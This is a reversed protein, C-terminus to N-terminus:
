IGTLNEMSHASFGTTIAFKILCNSTILNSHFYVSSMFNFKRFPDYPELKLNISTRLYKYTVKSSLQNTTLFFIHLSLNGKQFESIYVYELVHIFM